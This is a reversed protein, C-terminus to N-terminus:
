IKSCLVSFVFTSESFLNNKKKKTKSEEFRKQIFDSPRRVYKLNAIHFNEPFNKIKRDM